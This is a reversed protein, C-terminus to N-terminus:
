TVVFSKFPTVIKLSVISLTKSVKLFTSAILLVPPPIKPAKNDNTKTLKNLISPVLITTPPKTTNPKIKNKFTLIYSVNTM